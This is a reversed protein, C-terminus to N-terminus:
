EVDLTLYKRDPLARIQDTIEPYLDEFYKLHVRSVIRHVILQDASERIKQHVEHPIRCTMYINYDRHRSYRILAYLSYNIYHCHSWHDVEDIYLDLGRYHYIHDCFRNFADLDYPTFVYKFFGVQDYAIRDPNEVRTMHDDFMLRTTGHYVSLVSDCAICSRRSAQIRDIMYQTKGVGRAGYILQVM